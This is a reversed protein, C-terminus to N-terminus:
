FDRLVVERGRSAMSRKISGLICNVIQLNEQLYNQEVVPKNEIKM